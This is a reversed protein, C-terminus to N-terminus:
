LPPVPGRLPTRDGELNCFTLPQVPLLHRSQQKGQAGLGQTVVHSSAAQPGEQEGRPLPEIWVQLIFHPIVTAVRRDEAWPGVNERSFLRGCGAQLDKMGPRKM